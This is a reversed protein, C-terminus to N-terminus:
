CPAEEPLSVSIAQGIFGGPGNQQILWPEPYVVQLAEILRAGAKEKRFAWFFTGGWYGIPHQRLVAMAADTSMPEDM